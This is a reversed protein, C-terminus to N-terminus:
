ANENVNESRNERDSATSGTILWKSQLLAETVTTQM